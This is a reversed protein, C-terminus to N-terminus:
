KGKQYKLNTLPITHKMLTLYMTEPMQPQQQRWRSFTFVADQYNERSIWHCFPCGM